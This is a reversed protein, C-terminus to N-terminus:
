KKFLDELQERGADGPLRPGDANSADAGAEGAAGGFLADLQSRAAQAGSNDPVSYASPRPQFYGCFNSREKDKVQDAIPERCAQSVRPDYFECLRCVHLEARCAPCEAARGLPLPLADICAGCKWCVLVETM